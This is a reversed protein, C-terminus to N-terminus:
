QRSKSFAEAWEIVTKIDDISRFDLAKRFDRYSVRTTIIEDMLTGWKNKAKELDKIALEFHKPGANVSGLIIQNKLVMQRM